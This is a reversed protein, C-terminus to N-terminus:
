RKRAVCKRRVNYADPTKDKTHPDIIECWFTSTETNADKKRAPTDNKLGKQKCLVCADTFIINNQCPIRVRGHTKKGNHEKQVCWM